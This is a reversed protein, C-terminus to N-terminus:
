AARRVDLTDCGFASCLAEAVGIMRDELHEGESGPAIALFGLHGRGDQLTVSAAAALSGDENDLVLLYRHAPIM